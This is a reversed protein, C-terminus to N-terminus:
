NPRHHLDRVRIDRFAILPKMGGHSQLAFFGSRRGQPDHFDVTTIGNIKVVVHDGVCRVFLDNWDGARYKAEFRRRQVENLEVLFGRGTAEEYLNGTISGHNRVYGIEAQYGQVKGRDNLMTRFQVGSNGQNSLKFQLTLEFDTYDGQHILYTNGTSDNVPNNEGHAVITGDDVKWISLDGDWGALDTGNFIPEFSGSAPKKTKAAPTSPKSATKKEPLEKIEIKRFEVVTKPNNQQLAIYGSASIEKEDLYDATTVGNVKVVIHNAKVIIDMNFWKGPPVLSEHFAVVAGDHGAYLSGTRNMDVTNDIQAEYGYPWSPHDAPWGPGFTSRFYVGSNGGDNIRAVVCLHFDKFDGRETYLHSRDPGSGILVGNEVRWNGAQSPHTKWGNTDKRNFLPVFGDQRNDSKPILSSQFDRSAPKASPETARGVAADIPLAVRFGMGSDAFRPEQRGRYASRCLRAPCGYSGGRHVRLRGLPSGVPDSAQTLSETYRDWCWEWVNGHMDFLGFANSSYRGVPVTTAILQGPEETGYPEKGNCNCEIGNNVTGFSFQTTTAARCAYEWQAETPLHYGNGGEVSVTASKISMNREREITSIRYYPRLGEKESLMNCFEVADYWTVNEVPYRSTDVGTSKETDGGQNSFSSPNRGMVREFQSQTVEYAGLYFPKAIRALHQQEGDGREKESEPSGMQFQGPPILSFVMGLSNTSVVPMKLREAWQQRTKRAATEVEILASTRNEANSTPSPVSKSAPLEPLGELLVKGQSDSIKIRRFRATQRSTFLCIRGNAFRSDTQEAMLEGDLYARYTDGRVEIRLSYWRNSLWKMWKWNGDERGGKGNYVYCLDLGGNSGLLFTYHHSDGLWHFMIGGDLSGGTKKYELTIDYESLKPDGFVIAPYFRDGALNSQVLEGNDVSWDGRIFFPRGLSKRNREDKGSEAVAGLGGHGSRADRAPVLRITLPTKEGSAVSVVGLEPGFVQFGDKKVQVGRKGPPVTIEAPSGGGPWTVNVKEGDVFVEAKDPLGQLVIVGDKTKVSFVGSAWATVLGLLLVSVAVSPWMWPPQRRPKRIASRSTLSRSLKPTDILSKWRESPEFAEMPALSPDEDDGPPALAAVPRDAQSMVRSLEPQPSTLGGPKLFPKLAQVVEAPTQYRRNPDKAMMKAVVAALEVPVEPRVLNVMRAETSHHAQLVAYLSSGSFPPSGTLLHYLTCGLSYIDARIDAKQADLTQEPAIYDPTGLMQGEQTLTRDLGRESTVKALGFDLIKVVAKKGQRFLILNGPKIDRHIMGCEHAHQLGQAAQYAFYCANVVPLPGRARVLKALDDGEVYEMAFVLLDGMQLATYAAVVNPHHLKGASQIERLFRDATGQKALMEKNLVKLVEPRDMLKNRALYVVGMGGRGLERLVEYQPHNVLEPPLKGSSVPPTATAPPKGAAPSQRPPEPEVITKPRTPADGLRPQADRLRGVFSDSSLEAVRRRCPDCQELHKNVSEALTDGLKGLGYSVLTEDAPHLLAQREM